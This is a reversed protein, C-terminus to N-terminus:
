SEKKKKSLLPVGLFTALRDAETAQKMKDSHTIVNIRDNNSLVLNIEYLLINNDWHNTKKLLQIAKVSAPNVAFKEKPRFL